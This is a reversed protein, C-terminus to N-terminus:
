DFYIDHVIIIIIICTITRSKVLILESVMDVTDWKHAFWEPM